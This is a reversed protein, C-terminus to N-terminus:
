GLGHLEIKRPGRVLEPRRRELMTWAHAMADVIDDQPDDLGTFRMMQDILKDAWPADSPVHVRRSNWPWTLPQARTFKDAAARIERVNVNPAMRRMMQPVAKFGGVAEVGIEATAGKAAWQSRMRLTAQIIDPVEARQHMLDVVWAQADDGVGQMALLVAASHDASTSATAAPDLAIAWRFTHMLDRNARLWPQLDFRSPERFMAQGDPRPDQMYLSWFAGPDRAKEKDLEAIPLVEPCLATGDPNIAPMTVVDFKEAFAGSIIRGGPDDSHWRTGIGMIASEAKRDRRSAVDRTLGNWAKDRQLGSRAAEDGKILDDPILVDLGLGTWGSGIGRSIFRGRGDVEWFDLRARGPKLRYGARGVMLKMRESADNALEDGYAAYGVAVPYHCVLFSALQLVSETKGFRPPVCLWVRLPEGHIAPAIARLIRETHPWLRFEPTVVGAWQVLKDYPDRDDYLEVRSQSAPASMGCGPPAPPAVPHLWVFWALVLGLVARM